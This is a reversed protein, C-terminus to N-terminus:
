SLQYVRRRTGFTPLAIPAKARQSLEWIRQEFTPLTAFTRNAGYYGRGSAGDVKTQKEHVEVADVATFTVLTSYQGTSKDMPYVAVQDIIRGTFLPDIETRGAMARQIVRVAMGPHMVTMEVPDHANYLTFTLRGVDNKTTLGDPAGGRNARVTTADAIVSVWAGQADLYQVDLYKIVPQEIIM